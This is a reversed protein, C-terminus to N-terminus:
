CVQVVQLVLWVMTGTTKGIQYGASQALELALRSVSDSLELLLDSEWRVTYLEGGYRNGYNWVTSLSAPPTFDPNIDEKRVDEFSYMIEGPENKKKSGWGRLLGGVGGGADQSTKSLNPNSEDKKNNFERGWGKLLGGQQDNIQDKQDSTTQRKDNKTPSEEPKCKEGGETKGILVIIQDLQQIEQETLSYTEDQPEKAFVHDPNCGYKKELNQWLEDPKDCHRKWIGEASAVLHPDHVSYFRQL